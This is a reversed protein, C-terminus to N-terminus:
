RRSNNVHAVFRKKKEKLIATSMKEDDNIYSTFFSPFIEVLPVSSTGHSSTGWIQLKAAPPSNRYTLVTLIKRFPCFVKSFAKLGWAHM